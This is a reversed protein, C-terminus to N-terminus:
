RSSRTKVARTRGQRAPAPMRRRRSVGVGKGAGGSCLDDLADALKGLAARATEQDRASMQRLAARVAAEVTGSQVGDIREGRPTLRLVSRRRDRADPTRVILGDSELRRLVGTVTSPHLHLIAAVEGASVGPVRGVVRIVLRQPGTVGLARQMRKSAAQLGHDVAWLLRMFQLVDTLAAAHPTVSPPM